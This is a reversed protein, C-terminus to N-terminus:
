SNFEASAFCHFNVSNSNVTFLSTDGLDEVLNLNNAVKM